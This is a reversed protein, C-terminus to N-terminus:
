GMLQSVTYEAFSRITGISNEGKGDCTLGAMIVVQDGNAFLGVENYRTENIGNLNLFTDFSSGVPYMGTNTTDIATIKFYSELFDRDIVDFNNQYLANLMLCVDKASIYNDLESAERMLKRQMDVSNFGYSHCVNNIRDLGLYDMLSNLANNDSYVLAEQLLQMIPLASGDQDAKINGRGYEFTYQFTACTDTTISGNEFGDAITFLIPVGILASAPMAVDGNGIDYETNDTVNLVYAGYKAGGNDFINAADQINLQTGETLVADQADRDPADSGVQAKLPIVDTYGPIVLDDSRSLTFDALLVDFQSNQQGQQDLCIEIWETDSIDIGIKEPLSSRDLTDSSAYVLEGDLYIEVWGNATTGSTTSDAVAITGGMSSYGENEFIFYGESGNVASLKCLNAGSYSNGSADMVSDADNFQEMNLYDSFSQDM